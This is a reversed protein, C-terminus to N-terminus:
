AIDRRRIRRTGLIGFVLGYGVLVAAGVWQPPSETFLKTPSIMISSAEPPVIVQAALVWTKNLVYTNILDFVAGAGTAGVLYLVTASVTAALQNRVLAGFGVGLVAWIIYAALNLLIARDVGWQALQAGFGQTHLFVSGAVVSIVTSILWAMVALLSATLLKARILSGRRPTILFTNTATQHHYETTVLVIGLLCSLLLGILQGSTFLAAAQTVASHGTLWESHLRALFDAPLKDGPSHLHLTVYQDFSQLLGHANVANVVLMAVTSAVTALLFMWWASTTRLKFLEARVLRNM